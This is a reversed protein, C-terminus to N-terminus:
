RSRDLRRATSAAGHPICHYRRPDAPGVRQRVNQGGACRHPSRDALSRANGPELCHRIIEARQFLQLGSRHRSSSRGSRRPPSRDPERRTFSLRRVKGAFLAQGRGPDGHLATAATKIAGFRGLDKADNPNTSRFFTYSLTIPPLNGIDRNEAIKPDVFFTVPMEVREHPALSEEDFCFCQIKNFYQGALDPTVNYTAHAVITQDSRNEAWFTVLTREGLHVRVSAQSPGFRWPLGPAVDANFRVTVLRDTATEASGNSRRTTGGLGTAECFARYLPLSIAVLFLMVCVVGLCALLIRFNTAQKM